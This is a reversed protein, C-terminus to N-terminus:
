SVFFLLLTLIIGAISFLSIALRKSLKIAEDIVIFLNSIQKEGIIKMKAIRVSKWSSTVPELNRLATLTAERIYSILTEQNIAEGVPHYGRKTLVVSTVMHTDTTLIEGEEIDIGKLNVLIRERLGSVMNNGDITIYASKQDGVKVVIVSIGGPGLGDKISFDEPVINATGVEFPICREGLAKDIATLATSKISDVYNEVNPSGNISNHADITITSSLGRKKAELLITTDLHIPLDEM